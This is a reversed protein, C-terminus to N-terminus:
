HALSIDALECMGMMGWYFYVVIAVKPLETLHNAELSLEELYKEHRLVDEPVQALNCHSKDINEIHRPSWRRRRFSFFGGCKFM